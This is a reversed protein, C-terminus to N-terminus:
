LSMSINAPFIPRHSPKPHQLMGSIRVTAEIHSRRSQRTHWICDSDEYAGGLDALKAVANYNSPCLVSIEKRSLFENGNERWRVRMNRVEQESGRSRQHGM